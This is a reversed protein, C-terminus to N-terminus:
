RARRKRKMKIWLDLNQEIVVNWYKANGKIKGTEGM